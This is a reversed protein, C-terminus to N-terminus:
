IRITFEFFTNVATLFPKCYLAWGPVVGVIKNEDMMGYKPNRSDSSNDRNDGLVFIQGEPVQTKPYYRSYFDANNQPNVYPEDVAEGNLYLVGDSIEIEDGGVAILRKIITKDETEIVVIDGRRANAYKDMYIFDGGGVTYSEAGTLTDNMSSGVVYVRTYRVCFFVVLVLLVIALCLIINVVINLVSKKKKPALM